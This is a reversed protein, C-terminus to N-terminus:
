VPLQVSELTKEVVPLMDSLQNPDRLAAAVDNRRGALAQRIKEYEEEKAIYERIIEGKNFDVYVRTDRLRVVVDDLRMFFRSLLLLRQPMVRIKCTVMSIGNDALEDEYLVVEDFFLIPDPRKLLELPIPTTSEKFEQGVVDGKYDTSYSWDFPKVVEKIKEQHTNERSSAWEKAYAVTPRKEGTKDVCDLAGFANFSIAWKSVPHEISVFNDGFIMEPPAIGLKATMAEIPAAKLIPLKQSTIKFGQVTTTNPAAASPVTTNFPSRPPAGNTAAM